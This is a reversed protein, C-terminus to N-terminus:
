LNTSVFKATKVNEGQAKSALANIRTKKKKM